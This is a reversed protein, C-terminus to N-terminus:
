RTSNLWYGISASMTRYVIVLRQIRAWGIVLPPQHSVVSHPWTAALTSVESRSYNSQRVFASFGLKFGGSPRLQIPRLAQMRLPSTAFYLRGTSSRCARPDKSLLPHSPSPPSELSPNGPGGLYVEGGCGHETSTRPPNARGARGSRPCRDSRGLRETRPM